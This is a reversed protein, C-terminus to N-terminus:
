SIVVIPWHLFHTKKKYKKVARIKNPVFENLFLPKPISSIKINQNSEM